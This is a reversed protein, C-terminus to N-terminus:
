VKNKIEDIKRNIVKNIFDTFIRCKIKYDTIYNYGDKLKM